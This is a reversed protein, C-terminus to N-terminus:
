KGGKTSKMSHWERLCEQHRRLEVESDLGDELYCLRHVCKLKGACVMQHFVIFSFSDLQRNVLSVAKPTFTVSNVVHLFDDSLLKPLIDAHIEYRHLWNSQVFANFLIYEVTIKSLQLCYSIELLRKFAKYEDIKM